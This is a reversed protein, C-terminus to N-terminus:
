GFTLIPPFWQAILFLVLVEYASQWNNYSYYKSSFHLHPLHFLPFYDAFHNDMSVIGLLLLTLFMREQRPLTLWKDYSGSSLNVTSILCSSGLRALPSRTLMVRYRQTDDSLSHVKRVNECEWVRLWKFCTLIKITDVVRMLMLYSETELSFLRISEWHICKRHHM